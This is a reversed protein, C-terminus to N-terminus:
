NGCVCFVLVVWVVVVEVVIELIGVWVVGVWIGVSVEWVKESGLLIWLCYIGCFVVFEFFYCLM